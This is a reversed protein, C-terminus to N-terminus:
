KTEGGDGSTTAPLLAAFAPANQPWGSFLLRIDELYLGAMQRMRAENKIDGDAYKALASSNEKVHEIQEDLLKLLEDRLEKELAERMKADRAELARIRETQEEAHKALAEVTEQNEKAALRLEDLAAFAKEIRHFCDKYQDDTACGRIPRLLHRIEDDSMGLRGEWRSPRCDNDARGFLHTLKELLYWGHREGDIVGALIVWRDLLFGFAPNLKQAQQKRVASL